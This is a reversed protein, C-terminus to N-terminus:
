FEHKASRKRSRYGSQIALCFSDTATYSHVEIAQWVLGVQGQLWATLRTTREGQPNIYGNGGSMM